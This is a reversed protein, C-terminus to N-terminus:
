SGRQAIRRALGRIALYLAACVAATRPAGAGLAIAADVFVLTFVARKVVLGLRPTAGLGAATVFAALLALPASIWLPRASVLAIALYGGALAALRAIRQARPPLAADELQSVLTIAAVLAAYAGATAIVPAYLFGDQGGAWAAGLLLSLGRCLGMMLAAVPPRAKFIADYGTIALVVGCAVSFVLPGAALALGLALALTGALIALAAPRSLEGSPLPREPHHERDEDQDMWDNLAVGFAYLAMGSVAVLALSSLTAPTAPIPVGRVGAALAAGALVDAAATLTNPLRIFRLASRARLRPPPM